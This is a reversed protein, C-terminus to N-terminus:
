QPSVVFEYSAIWAKKGDRWVEELVMALDEIGHDVSPDNKFFLRTVLQRYGAHSIIFHMHRPLGGTYGPFVTVVKFAGREGSQLDGRWRDPQHDGDQNAHVIQIRAGAVPKGCTDVVRARLFLPEGADGERWLKPDAVGATFDHPGASTGRTPERKNCPTPSIRCAWCSPPALLGFLSRRQHQWQSSRNRTRGITLLGCPIAM